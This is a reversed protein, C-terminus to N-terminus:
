KWPTMLQFYNGDPDAFTAIMTEKDEGPHYPRAIVTAGIKEIRNFEEEVQETQFNFLIRDPNPNAGHIKDHPGVMLITQHAVQFGHYDGEQFEPKKDFVKEYFESLKKADESFLLISNLLLM